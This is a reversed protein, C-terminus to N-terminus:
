NIMNENILHFDVMKGRLLVHVLNNISYRTATASFSHVVECGHRVEHGKMNEMM